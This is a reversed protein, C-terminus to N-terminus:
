YLMTQPSAVVVAFYAWSMVYNTDEIIEVALPLGKSYLVVKKSIDLHSPDVEKSKFANWVFLELAEERNLGEVEYVRKVGYVHLVHKDRTTIIVRSGSGFWDLGGALAKLQELSNVDDLILLVKKGRLRSKIIPIGKNLSCLKLDKVGTLEFLLTEQLQVLGRKMSNERIDSLFCLSDFQDAVSNYVAFALTTKGSGGMGYIGVMQAEEQIIKEIFKYEYGDKYHWGVLNSAEQLALRWQKIKAKDITKKKEHNALAKAYSGKQHRVDSPEVQYFFVPLVLRGEHKICEMIKTLEELCFASSAYNESFIVILIRSQQIAMMLAPTIEEGKRLEQDDIFTNIGKGFLASYLNGTFGKRTDEGRFSLFVDYVWEYNFSSFASSKLERMNTM